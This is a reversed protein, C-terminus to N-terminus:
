SLTRMPAFTTTRQISQCFFCDHLCNSCFSSSEVNSQQYALSTGSERRGPRPAWRSHDSLCRQFRRRFRPHLLHNGSRARHGALADRLVAPRIWGDDSGVEVVCVPDFWPNERDGHLNPYGAQNALVRTRGVRYDHSGHDHGHIWLEPQYEEILASLNSVFAPSLASGQHRPQVSLPHPAHHTVVVTPGEHPKSLGDRQNDRTAAARSPCGDAPTHFSRRM